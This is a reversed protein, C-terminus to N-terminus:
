DVAVPEYKNEKNRKKIHYCTCCIYVITLFVFTFLFALSAGRLAFLRVLGWSLGTAVLSTFIYIVLISLQKRMLLLIFFLMQSLAFVGGGLVIIVLEVRLNQIDVHYLLNVVWAGFIYALGCCLFSFVLVLFGHKLLLRRLKSTNNNELLSAYENLMPKFIFLSCLNIVQAPVFIINFLGQAQDNLLGEIAYKSANLAYNILFVNLFLPLCALALRAVRCDPAAGRPEGSFRAAPRVSWFWTAALDIAILGLLAFFVSRTVSVVAVFALTSFMYRYFLSKGSLDLRNHQFYFAQYLEAFANILMFITLLLLYLRETRDETFLMIVVCIVTMLALSMWKLGLYDAFRYENRYDTMQYNNAGFLGVFYLLQATTLSISFRGVEAVDASRSVFIVLIVSNAAFMISGVM